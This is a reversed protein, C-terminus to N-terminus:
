NKVLAIGLWRTSSNLIIFSNTNVDMKNWLSNWFHTQRNYARISALGQLTENFHSFVPSKTISDIRQLERIQFNEHLTM